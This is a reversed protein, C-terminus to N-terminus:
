SDDREDKYDGYANVPMKIGKLALYATISQRVIYGILIAVILTCFIIVAGADSTM